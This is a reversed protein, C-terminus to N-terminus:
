KNNARFNWMRGIRAITRACPFSYQGEAPQPQRREWGERIGVSGLHLMVTKRGDTEETVGQVYVIGKRLHDINRPDSDTLLSHSTLVARQIENGFPKLAKKLPKGDSHSTNSSLEIRDLSLARGDEIYRFHIRAIERGDSTNLGYSLNDPSLTTVLRSNDGTGIAEVLRQMGDKSELFTQLLDEAKVFKLIQKPDRFVLKRLQTVRERFPQRWRTKFDYLIEGALCIPECLIAAPGSLFSPPQLPNALMLFYTILAAKTAPEANSLVTVAIGVVGVAPEIVFHTALVMFVRNAVADRFGAAMETANPDYKLRQYYHYVRTVDYQTKLREIFGAGPRQIGELLEHLQEAEEPNLDEAPGVEVQIQDRAGEDAFCPSLPIGFLIVLLFLWRSKLVFSYGCISLLGTM